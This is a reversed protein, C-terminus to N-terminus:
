RQALANLDAPDDVVEPSEGYLKVLWDGLVENTLPAGNDLKDVAVAAWRHEEELEFLDRQLDEIRERAAIVAKRSSYFRDHLSNIAEDRTIVDPNNTATQTQNM